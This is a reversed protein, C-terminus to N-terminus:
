RSISKIVLLKEESSIDRKLATKTFYLKALFYNNISIPIIPIM